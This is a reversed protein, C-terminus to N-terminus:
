FISSHLKVQDIVNGNVVLKGKVVEAGCNSDQSVMNEKLKYLRTYEEREKKSLDAKIRIGRTLENENLLRAAKKVENRELQDKFEVLIYRPRKQPGQDPNGIRKSFVPEIEDKQLFKLLLGVKEKETSGTEGQFQWNEGEPIGSLILRKYRASRDHQLIVSQQKNVIDKKKKGVFTELNKVKVEYLM